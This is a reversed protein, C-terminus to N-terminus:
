SIAFCEATKRRSVNSRRFLEIGLCEAQVNGFRMAQERQPEGAPIVNENIWLGVMHRSRERNQIKGHFIDIKRDILQRFSADTELHIIQGVELRVLFPDHPSITGGDGPEFIRRSVNERYDFFGSRRSAM